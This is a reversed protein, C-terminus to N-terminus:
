AHRKNNILQKIDAPLSQSSNIIHPKIPSTAKIAAQKITQVIGEAANDVDSHTKLAVKLNINQDLNFKFKDWDIPGYTLSPRFNLLVDDIISLLVPSHDSSLDCINEVNTNILNPIKSIFFDLTEPLRNM